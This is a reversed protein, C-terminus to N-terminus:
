VIWTLVGAEDEMCLTEEQESVFWSRGDRNTIEWVQRYPVVLGMSIPARGVSHSVSPQVLGKRAQKPLCDEALVVHRLFKCFDYVDITNSLDTNSEIWEIIRADGRYWPWKYFIPCYDALWDYLNLYKVRNGIYTFQNPFNLPIALEIYESYPYNVPDNYYGFQTNIDEEKLTIGRSANLQAWQATTGKFHYKTQNFPNFIFLNNDQWYGVLKKTALLDPLVFNLFSWIGTNRVRHDVSSSIDLTALAHYFM